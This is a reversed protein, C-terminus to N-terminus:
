MLSGLTGDLRTKLMEPSPVDVTERPLRNWCWVVRETFCKGRVDSKFREKTEKVANGRTSDFLYLLDIIKM